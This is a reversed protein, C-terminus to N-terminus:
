SNLDSRNVFYVGNRLRLAEAVVKRREVKEYLEQYETFM